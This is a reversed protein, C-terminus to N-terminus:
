KKTVYSVLRAVTKETLLRSAIDRRNEPKDLEARMSNDQYQNKLIQIRIELEEVSVDIGEAEAIEALALSAKVRKEAQPTLEEKRYEEETKGEAELYEQWTQGRYTLNQRLERILAEIQEDVLVQPVSVKTKEGIESILESEFKRDAEHQKEHQLQKKIDEKLQKISEFPGVKKAFEDDLKPEIVEQVKTVNVTFTVKKNALAKMGYDKPFTLTFTKEDGPKLGVINEEFGPIFTNSGLALPYDKGDAGKIPEGKDDVGVFDIWAQDGDEAARDVDKKEALQKQLSNLVQDVDKATIKVEPKEKMIKKYDPLKINGVVPLTAKFELETFPVFKSIQIEPRDVPRLKEKRIADAYLTSVAEELFETQLMAQDLNKEVLPLPAKGKRFGALNLQPQLKKLVTEKIPMLEEAAASVTMVAETDSPQSTTIQM